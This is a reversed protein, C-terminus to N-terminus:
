QNGKAKKRRELEARAANESSAPKSPNKEELGDNGLKLYQPLQAVIKKQTQEKLANYEPSTEFKEFDALKGGHTEKWQDFLAARAKNFIAAEKILTANILNNEALNHESVGKANAAMNELGIGMRAGKFVDAAFSIGLQKSATIVQDRATMAEKNLALDAYQQEAKAKDMKPVVAGAITTLVNAGTFGKGIGVSEPHSKSAAIVQDAAEITKDADENLKYMQAQRKGAETSATEPGKSTIDLEKEARKKRYENNADVQEKTQPVPFPLDGTSVSATKAAVTTSAPETTTKSALLAAKQTPLSAVEAPAATLNGGSVASSLQWHNPDKQPFPQVFGAKILKQRATEDFTAPDVDVADGFEHKSTGPKAVLPGKYGPQLSANYLATQKTTDRDGSIIKVGLENALAQANGSKYSANALEGPKVDFNDAFDPKQLPTASIPNIKPLPQTHPLLNSTQTAAPATQNSATTTATTAAPAAASTKTATAAPANPKSDQPRAVKQGNPLTGTQQFMAWQDPTMDVNGIQPNIYYKQQTHRAADFKSENGAWKARLAEAAAVDPPNLSLLRNIESAVAPPMGGAVPAGANTPNLTSKLSAARSQAADQAAKYQALASKMGFTTADQGEREAARARLAEGPGAIGGSWWATADKLNEMFSGKRAEREAIMQQMNQLLEPPIASAGAASPLASLYPGTGMNKPAKAQASAGTDTTDESSSDGTSGGPAFHKINDLGAM